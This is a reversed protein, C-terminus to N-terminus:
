WWWWWYCWSCTGQSRGDGRCSCLPRGWVFPLTSEWLHLHSGLAILCYKSLKLATIPSRSGSKFVKNGLREWRTLLCLLWIRPDIKLFGFWWFSSPVSQCMFNTFCTLRSFIPFRTFSSITGVIPVITISTYCFFHDLTLRTVNGCLTGNSYQFIWHINSSQIPPNYWTNEM